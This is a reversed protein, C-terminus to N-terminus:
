IPRTARHQVTASRTPMQRHRGEGDGGSLGTSLIHAATSRRTSSNVACGSRYYGTRSDALFGVPSFQRAFQAKSPRAAHWRLGSSRCVHLPLAHHTEYRTQRTQRYATDKCSCASATCEGLLQCIRHGARLGYTHKGGLSTHHGPCSGARNQGNISTNRGGFPARQHAEPVPGDSRNGDDRSVLLAADDAIFASLGGQFILFDGMKRALGGVSLATDPSKGSGALRSRAYTLVIEPKAAHDRERPMHHDAIAAGSNCVTGVM